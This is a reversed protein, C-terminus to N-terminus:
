PQHKMAAGSLAAASSKPASAPPGGMIALTDSRGRVIAPPMAAAVSGVPLKAPAIPRFGTKDLIMSENPVAPKNPVHQPIEVAPAPKSVVMTSSPASVKLNQELAGAEGIPRVIAAHNVRGEKETAPSAPEAAHALGLTCAGVVALAIIRRTTKM